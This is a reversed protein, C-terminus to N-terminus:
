TERRRIQPPDPALASPIGRPESADQAQRREVHRRWRHRRTCTACGATRDSWPCGCARCTQTERYGPDTPPTTHTPKEPQHMRPDIV